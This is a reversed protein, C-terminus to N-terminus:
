NPTKLLSHFIEMFDIYYGMFFRILSYYTISGLHYKTTSILVEKVPLFITLKHKYFFWKCIMFGMCYKTFNAILNVSFKFVLLLIILYPVMQYDSIFIKVKDGDINKAKM